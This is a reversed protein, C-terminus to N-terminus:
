QLASLTTSDVLYLHDPTLCLDDAFVSFRTKETSVALDPINVADDDEVVQETKRDEKEQVCELREVENANREDLLANKIKTVIEEADERKMREKTKYDSSSVNCLGHCRQLELDYVCVVTEYHNGNSNELYIGQTSLGNFKCSYELWRGDCLTFINVGLCDAAAQIEVETAWTGVYRMKSERIYDAVSSYESRLLSNYQSANKELHKVVALRIKRHSKQTGSVALSVARFFCNGDAVINEKKCPSGLLGIGPFVVKDVMDFEVNVRKCVSQAIEKSLPDFQLQKCIEDCVFVVDAEDVSGVVVDNPGDGSVFVVDTDNVPDEGSGMMVDAPGDGSVCVVDTDYIPDEGSGMMVDAPGDGSVCVVDTDYVPDEGSGMMVDAPGGGSVCVVDTDHVLDEGSGMMVDAPGDGSVAVVDDPAEDNVVVVQADDAPVDDLEVHFVRVGAIEFAKHSSNLSTALNCVYKHVDRVRTFYAVISLGEVGSVLGARSRAHSDVLAYRNNQSILACTTGGLTLLCTSYKGLMRELGDLLSTYCGNEVFEGAVVNVVGSVYDSGYDFTFQQNDFVYQTPLEPVCLIESTGGIRNNDRLFTYLEDGLHLVKDLVCSQWSFVSKVTHKALSALAIAMCQRGPYKFRKNGQHFSGRIWQVEAPTCHQNKDIVSNSSVSGSCSSDFDTKCKICRPFDEEMMSSPSSETVCATPADTQTVLLDVPSPTSSESSVSSM